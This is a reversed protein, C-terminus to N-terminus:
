KQVYKEELPLILAIQVGGQEMNSVTLYGGHAALIKEGIALGLGAKGQDKLTTFLPKKVRAIFEAAIRPGNNSITIKLWDHPIFPSSTELKECDVAVTGQVLGAHYFANDLVAHLARKILAPDVSVAAARLRHYVPKAPTLPQHYDRIVANLLEAVPLRVRSLEPEQLYALFDRTIRRGYEMKQRLPDNEIGALAILAILSNYDHAINQMYEHYENRTEGASLGAARSMCTYLYQIYNCFLLLPKPIRRGPASCALIFRVQQRHDKFPFFHQNQIKFCSRNRYKLYSRPRLASLKQLVSGASVEPPVNRFPQPSHEHELVVFSFSTFNVQLFNCFLGSINKITLPEPLTVSFREILDPLNGSSM